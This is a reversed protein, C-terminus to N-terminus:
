LERQGAEWDESDGSDRGNISDGGFLWQQSNLIPEEAGKFIYKCIYIAVSFMYCQKTCLNVQVNDKQM